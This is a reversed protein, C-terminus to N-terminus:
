RDDSGSAIHMKVLGSYAKREHHRHQIKPILAAKKTSTHFFEIFTQDRSGM